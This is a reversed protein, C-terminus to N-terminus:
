AHSEGFHRVQNVVLPPEGVIDAIGDRPRDIQIHREVVRVRGAPLHVRLIVHPDRHLITDEMDEDAAPVPCAAALEHIIRNLGAHDYFRNWRVEVKPDEPAGLAPFTEEAPIEASVTTTLLLAFVLAGTVGAVIRNKRPTM